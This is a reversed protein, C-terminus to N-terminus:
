AGVLTASWAGQMRQRLKSRVRHLIVHCNGTSIGLRASIENCDFGLLERMLFVQSAAEPLDAVCQEVTHWFQTAQLAGEPSTLAHSATAHQWLAQEGILADVQDHWGEDGEVLSSWSVVKDAQRHHDVIRNRLICFMWTKLSSRGAFAEAHRLASEIADQVLDEAVEHRRIQHRAYRLMDARIEMLFAMSITQATDPQRAESAHMSQAM